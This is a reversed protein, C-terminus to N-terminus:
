ISTPLTGNLESMIEKNTSILIAVYNNLYFKGNEKSIYNAVKEILEWPESIEDQLYNCKLM